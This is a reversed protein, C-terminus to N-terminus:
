RCKIQGGGRDGRGGGGKVAVVRMGRASKGASQAEMSVRQFM